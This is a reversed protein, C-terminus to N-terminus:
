RRKGSSAVADGMVARIEEAELPQPLYYFIRHRRVERQLKLSDHDSIVVVPLTEDISNLCPIYELERHGKKQLFIVVADLNGTLAQIIVDPGNDTWAADYAGSGLIASLNEGDAPKRSYILVRPLPM